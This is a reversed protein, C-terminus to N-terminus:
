SEVIPFFYSLLSADEDSTSVLPFPSFFFLRGGGPGIEPDRELHRKEKMLLPSPFFPFLLVANSKEQLLLLFCRGGTEDGWHLFTWRRGASIALPAAAPLFVDAHGTYDRFSFSFLFPFSAPSQEPTSFFTLPPLFVRQLSRSLHIGRDMGAVSMFPLDVFFHFLTGGTRLLPFLSLIVGRM